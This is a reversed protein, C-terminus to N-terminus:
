DDKKDVDIQAQAQQAMKNVLLASAKALERLANMALEGDKQDLIFRIEKM